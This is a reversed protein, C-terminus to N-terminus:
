PAGDVFALFGACMEQNSEGWGIDRPPAGSKQNSARNDFHCEVYVEDDPELVIPKAFWFQAEWGFHWKPVELLCQRSDDANRIVRMVFRSGFAHMHPTASWLSVTNGFGTYLSPKFRYFVRADPDGARVTMGGGVLWAPNAIAMSKYERAADDLKFEVKTQDPVHAPGNGLSYHINILIKEGPQVKYGLGGPYDTGSLSGGIVKVDRLADQMIANCDFGPRDSKAQEALGVELAADSITGVVLHHVVERVDPVPNFGTIFKTSPLPWDLIFCRNEDIKGDPPQPLYPKPIQLTLDVRSLGGIPKPAPPEDSPNGVPTGSDLWRVITDLEDDTLSADEHYETCCRAALWPPMHRTVVAERILHAGEAWNLVDDLPFPGIGSAVHCRSCKATAIPKVDAYWSPVRSANPQELAPRTAESCWPTEDPQGKCSALAGLVAALVLTRRIVSAGIRHAGRKRSGVRSTGMM